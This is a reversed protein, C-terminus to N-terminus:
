EKASFAKHHVVSGAPMEQGFCLALLNKPPVGEMVLGPFTKFGFRAYYGPEGVLVCGKAGASELMSLGEHILEKGIGKNQLRPLVAVPGLAFWGPSSESIAVPSFAIHGAVEGEVEAVLSITLAGDARLANVIHQETGAGYPHGKFAEKVVQFIAEIDSEREKRIIM